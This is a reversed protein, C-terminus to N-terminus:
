PSANRLVMPLYDDYCTPCQVLLLNHNSYWFGGQSGGVTFFQGDLGAGELRYLGVPLEPGYDFGGSTESAYASAPLLTGDQAVGNAIWIQYEGDLVQWGDAMGWWPEPLAGLDANAANFNETALDYCQTASASSTQSNHDIGGGVCIAGSEGVWPVYWSAHFGFWISAPFNDIYRGPTGDPYYVWLDKTRGGGVQTSGGTLYCANKEVGTKVTPNNLLSVVDQGWRGIEPYFSPVPETYWLKTTIDFIHLSGTVITDPFLVVVEHGAGNLGYCGDMPYEIAPTIVTEPQFTAWTDNSPDYRQTAGDSGYGGISWLGGDTESAWVVVNDMTPKLTDTLGQWGALETITNVLTAQDSEGNGSATLTATVQQGPKLFLDPKFQVVFTVIEGNSLDFSTPGTFVSGEPSTEYNLNFTGSGASIDWLEFTHTQTIGNCGEVTRSTTKFWLPTCHEITTQGILDNGNDGSLSWNIVRNGDYGSPINLDVCFDWSSGASVEGIGGLDDNYLVENTSPTSCTLDVPNGSSDAADQFYCTTAWPGLGGYNPFTLRVQDLWEADTSGNYVTFCLVQSTSGDQYCNGTEMTSGSVSAIGVDAAFSSLSVTTSAPNAAQLRQEGLSAAEPLDSHGKIVSEPVTSQALGQGPTALSTLVMIAGLTLALGLTLAFWQKKM